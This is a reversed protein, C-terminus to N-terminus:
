KPLESQVKRLRHGRIQLAKKKLLQEWAERTGIESPQEYLGKGEEQRTLREYKIRLPDDKRLFEEKRHLIPPNESDSYNRQSLEFTQLHVLLSRHLSPHANTEFNPYSLYSVKPEHVYLKIVNAGDVAGSLARACGEYVRLVSDLSELATNYVYLGTPTLKGIASARCTTEILKRDGASFLLKDALECARAYNSFFARIDLQLSLPLISFRPRKSFRALAMYVLLDQARETRIKEWQAPDTVRKVVMFARRISGIEKSLQAAAHLEEEVPLRGRASVFQIFEEFLPRHAEFLQDSRRQKPLASSRRLRSSLYEYRLNPDRFVYFVGPAAAVSSDNLTSDIWLRLENQEYLKQFTGRSTLYGDAFPLIEGPDTEVTLRASVIMVRQAFSWAQRLVSERETANEIVNIVYGLNVVDANQFSTEPAYQPDWGACAFGLTRLRAVDSGRGCGYDFLSLSPLLIGDKIAYRLPRSLDNRSIATRHRPIMCVWDANLNRRSVNGRIVAPLEPNLNRM